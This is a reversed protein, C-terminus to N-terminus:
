SQWYVTYMNLRLFEELDWSFYTWFIFAFAPYPLHLFYFILFWCHMTFIDFTLWKIGGKNKWEAKTKTNGTFLSFSFFRKVIKNLQNLQLGPSTDPLQVNKTPNRASRVLVILQMFLLMPMGKTQHSCQILVDMNSVFFTMYFTSIYFVQIVIKNEM